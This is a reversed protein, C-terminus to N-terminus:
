SPLRIDINLIYEEQEKHCNKIFINIEEEELKSLTTKIYDFLYEYSYVEKM